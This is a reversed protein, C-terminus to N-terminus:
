SYNIGFEISINEGGSRSGLKRIEGMRGYPKKINLHNICIDGSIQVVVGALM